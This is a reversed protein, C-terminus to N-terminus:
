GLVFVPGGASLLLGTAHATHSPPLHPPVCAHMGTGLMVVTKLWGASTNDKALPTYIMKYANFRRGGTLNGQGQAGWGGGGRLRRGQALENIYM